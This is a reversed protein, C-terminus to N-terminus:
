KCGGPVKGGKVWQWGDQFMVSYGLVVEKAGAQIAGKFGNTGGSYFSFGGRPSASPKYSGQPYFAEWATKGSQQVVNHTMNAAVKVVNLTKDALAVTSIGPVSVGSATTFGNEYTYESPFLFDALNSAPDDSAAAGTVVRVSSLSSLILFISLTPAYLRWM